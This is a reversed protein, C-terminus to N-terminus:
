KKIKHTKDKHSLARNEAKLWIIKDLKGTNHTQYIGYRKCYNRLSEYKIGMRRAAEAQSIYEYDEM